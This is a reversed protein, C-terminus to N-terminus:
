LRTADTRILHSAAGRPAGRRQGRRHERLRQLRQLRHVLAPYAALAAPQDILHDVVQWFRSESYGLEVRARRVRAAERPGYIQSALQLAMHDRVTLSTTTTSM